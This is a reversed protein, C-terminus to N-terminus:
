ESRNYVRGYDLSLNWDPVTDRQPAKERRVSCDQAFGLRVMCITHFPIITERSVFCRRYLVSLPFAAQSRLLFIYNLVAPPRVIYFLSLRYLSSFLSVTNARRGNHQSQIRNESDSHGRRTASYCLLVRCRRTM